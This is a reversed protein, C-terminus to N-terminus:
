LNATQPTVNPVKAIPRRRGTTAGYGMSIARRSDVGHRKDALRRIATAIGELLGDPYLGQGRSSKCSIRGAEALRHDKRIVGGAGHGSLPVEAIADAGASGRVGGVRIAGGSGVRHGEGDEIIDSTAVGDGLIYRNPGLGLGVKAGIRHAMGEGSGKCVLRHTRYAIQPVKTIADAGGQLIRGMRISRCASVGDGENHGTGLATFVGDLFRDHHV